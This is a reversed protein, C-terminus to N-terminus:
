SAGRDVKGDIRELLAMVKSVSDIPSQMLPFTVDGDRPGSQERLWKQYDSNYAMVMVRLADVLDATKVNFQLSESQRKCEQVCALVEAAWTRDSVSRAFGVWEQLDAPLWVDVRKGRRM